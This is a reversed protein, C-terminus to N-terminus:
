QRRYSAQNPRDLPPPLQYRPPRPRPRRLRGSARSGGPLGGAGGGAAGLRVEGAPEQVEPLAALEQDDGRYGGGLRVRRARGPRRGPGHRGGDSPPGSAVADCVDSLITQLNM